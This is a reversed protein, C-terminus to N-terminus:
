RPMSCAPLYWTARTCPGGTLKATDDVRQVDDGVHTAVSLTNSESM